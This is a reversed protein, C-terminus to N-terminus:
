IGNWDLRGAYALETFSVGGSGTLEALPSVCYLIGRIDYSDNTLRDQRTVDSWCLNAEGTSFFRGSDEEIMTVRAPTEAATTGRELEPLAIILALDRVVGESELHGSFRLRAGADNPRPMGDCDLADGQWDIKGEIAGYIRGELKGSEMCDGAASAGPSEADPRCAVCALAAAVLWLTRRGRANM